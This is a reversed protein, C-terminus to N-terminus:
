SLLLEKIYKETLSIKKITAPTVFVTDDGAVTGLVLPNKQSDLFLAVGAARGPLTRIVIVMENRDIATVERAIMPTIQHADPADNLFYRMGNETHTRGVGLEALDRSLTAQTVDFGQKKLLASLDEQSGVSQTHIIEKIAFHRQLKNM